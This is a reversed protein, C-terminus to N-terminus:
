LVTELLRKGELTGLIYTKDGRTWTATTLDDLQDYKPKESDPAGPVQAAAVIFLFLNPRKTDKTQGSNFCIMAVPNSQWKLLACGTSPVKELTKPLAYDGRQNQALFRRIAALDNTELDMPPYDGRAVTKAMRNRFGTFTLDERPGLHLTSIVVGLAVAAAFTAVALVVKRRVQTTTHVKRESIIQEKLGAPVAIQRFKARTSEYRACHEELWRGLQPDRKAQTLADSFDPDDSDATGPRYLTLIEKAQYSNM